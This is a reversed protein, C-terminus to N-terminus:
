CSNNILVPFQGLPSPALLAAYIQRYVEQVNSFKNGTAKCFTYAPERPHQECTNSVASHWPFPWVVVSQYMCALQFGQRCISVQVVEAGTDLYATSDGVSAIILDWGVVVAVTATTGSVQLALKVQTQAPIDSM